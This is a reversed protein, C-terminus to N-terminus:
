NVTERSDMWPNKRYHQRCPWHGYGDSIETEGFGYRNPSLFSPCLAPLIPAECQSEPVAGKQRDQKCAEAHPPVDCLKFIRGSHRAIRGAAVIVCFMYPNM